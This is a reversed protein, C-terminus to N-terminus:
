DSIEKALIIEYPKALLPSVKEILEKIYTKQFQAQHAEQNVWNEYIFFQSTNELSQHLRYELCTKEQRSPEVVAILLRELEKKYEPKAELIALVTYSSDQWM